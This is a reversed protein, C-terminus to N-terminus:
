EFLVRLFLLLERHFEATKDLYCAHGAGDLVVQRSNPLAEGLARAQKLPVTQDDKGWILLAPLDKGTIAKLNEQIGVPAVAVFGAVFSPRQVLLPFSFRGSMSPTVLAVPSDVFLPLLSSLFREPPTKSVESGGFGPLDLALVRYGQRALLEITGLEKWTESSFRGGHLLLVTPGEGAELFHIRAGNLSLEESHIAVADDQVPAPDDKGVAPVATTFVAVALLRFLTRIMPTEEM